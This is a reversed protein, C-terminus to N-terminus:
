GKSTKACFAHIKVDEDNFEKVKSKETSSRIDFMFRDEEVSENNKNEENESMYPSESETDKAFHCNKDFDCKHSAKSKMLIKPQCTKNLLPNKPFDYISKGNSRKSNDTKIFKQPTYFFSPTMKNINLEKKHSVTKPNNLDDLDNINFM